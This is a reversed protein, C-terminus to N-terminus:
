EETIVALIGDLAHSGDEQISNNYAQMYDERTNFELYTKKEDLEKLKQEVSKGENTMVLNALTKLFTPVTEKITGDDNLIKKYLIGKGFKVMNAM